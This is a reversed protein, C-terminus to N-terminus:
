KHKDLWESGGPLSEILRIARTTSPRTNKEISARADERDIGDSGGWVQAAVILQQTTCSNNWLKKVCSDFDSLGGFAMNRCVRRMLDNLGLSSMRNLQETSCFQSRQDALSKALAEDLGALRSIVKDTLEPEAENLEKHIALAEKWAEEFTFKKEVPPRKAEPKEPAAQKKSKELEARVREAVIREVAAEDLSPAPVPSAPKKAGYFYAVGFGGVACAVFLVVAVLKSM